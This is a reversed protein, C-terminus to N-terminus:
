AQPSRAGTYLLLGAFRDFLVVNLCFFVGTWTLSPFSLGPHLPGAPTAPRGAWPTPRLADCLVSKDSQAPIEGSTGGSNEGSNEWHVPKSELATAVLKKHM